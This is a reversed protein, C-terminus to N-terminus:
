GGMDGGWVSVCGTVGSKFFHGSVKTDAGERSLIRPLMGCSKRVKRLNDVVEHWDDDGATMVHGIYKFATLNELPAGYAESDRETIERLEEEALRRRKREAGNDCQATAPHIRNLTRWPFM